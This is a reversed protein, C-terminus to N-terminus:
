VFIGNFHGPLTLLLSPVSNSIELGLFDSQYIDFISASQFHISVPELGILWTKPKANKAVANKLKGFFQTKKSSNKMNERPKLKTTRSNKEFPGFFCAILLRDATEKKEFIFSVANGNALSVTSTPIKM